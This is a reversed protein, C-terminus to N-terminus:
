LLLMSSMMKVEAGENVKEAGREVKFCKQLPTLDANTYKSIIHNISCLDRDIHGLKNDAHQEAYKNVFNFCDYSIPKYSYKCTNKGKKVPESVGVVGVVPVAAVVTVSSVGVVGVVPVAAVLTVSSVGVVGVVPVAAVLTVSSVGVVGVVPVAAVVNASLECYSPLYSHLVEHVEIWLIGCAIIKRLVM